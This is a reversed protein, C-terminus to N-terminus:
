CGNRVYNTSLWAVFNDPPLPRSILYGQLIDCGERSLYAYTDQDEVGEAVVQLSLAHGLQIASCVVARDRHDVSLRQVFSKDIKVEDIPLHRLRGLSSYGTGFDDISLRVGLEHLQNLTALSDTEDEMLSSETIELTLASAPVGAQGLLHSVVDPLTRDRLSSPSLNVAVHLDYGALRWAACNRLSVELVHVTLARVLGAHEALPVFQDPPVNGHTAHHWRALAEAGTVLGTHPDLKPQFVVMLEREQIAARLNTIMALRDPTNQDDEPLYLQIGTHGRKAAYMAVDARRLLTQADDGHVPAVVIGVSARANLSLPGLQVPRELDRSLDAAIDLAEQADEVRPLLIAFEDGGLRALRGRGDVRQRLRSGVERLVSDGTEHGLADNVEKFRDLDLQIVAPGHIVAPGGGDQRAQDLAATLLEQFHRRNPLGTMPDHLALYEKEEVERRLRDVLAANAISVSAHNALAQFLRLADEDFSRIDALSDHVLLVGTREGWPVPVAMGDTPLGPVQGARGGKTRILVAKGQLAPAWWADDTGLGHDLDPGDDTGRGDDTGLGHDLELETTTLEGSGSMRTRSAPAGDLVPVILEATEARLQDRAQELVVRAIDATGGSGDLARTFAYLEHVQAHVHSQQVFARYALFLTVSIVALLVLVWRNNRVALSGVLGITTSVAVIPVGRLAAPLHRWEGPDDHLAIAATVAVLAVADSLLMAAYVALWTRADAPIIGDAPADGRLILFVIVAVSAQMGCTAVNFFLKLGRHRRLFLLGAGSGIVRGLLALVPDFSLMALVMPIESISMSHSGRRVRVHVVFGETIVFAILLAAAYGSHPLDSPTTVGRTALIGVTVPAVTGLATGLATIRGDPRSLWRRMEDPMGAAKGPLHVAKVMQAGARDATVTVM